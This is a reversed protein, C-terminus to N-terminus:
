LVNRITFDVMIKVIIYNIKNLHIIISLIGILKMMIFFLVAKYFDIIYFLPTTIIMFSM